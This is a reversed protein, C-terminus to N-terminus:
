SGDKRPPAVLDFDIEFTRDWPLRLRELRWGDATWPALRRECEALYAASAARDGFPVGFHEGYQPALETRVVAQYAHDELLRHALLRREAVPDLTGLRQGAVHAVLAAVVSGITNGATNWGGYATLADLLDADRLTRVLSDDGGNAQRVDALGVTAGRERLAALADVVGAVAPMPTAAPVGAGWDAGSPDPAHVVLVADADDVDDVLEAGAARAQRDVTRAVPVNEYPAIRDGGGDDPIRVALRPAAGAARSLSRAVLVAGVEDAGPYCLLADGLSLVEIWHELWLQELSGASRPATDDATVLLPDIVGGAALTLAHLNVTHNRARRWAFDRWVPEPLAARLEELESPEGLHDRHLAAGLRHLERGHAPWYDPEEAGSYSDSARLVTTVAGVPLRPHAARVAELAELRRVSAAAPESSIRSAILGGYALLDVSAVLADVEGAVDVVWDALADADGAERGRPLLADPPLVTQAGAVAAVMGPLRANVPREDLPALGIRV